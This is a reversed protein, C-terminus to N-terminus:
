KEEGLQIENRQLVGDKDSDFMNFIFEAEEDTVKTGTLRNLVEKFEVPTFSDKGKEDVIMELEDVYRFFNKLAKFSHAERTDGVVHYYKRLVGGLLTLMFTVMSGSVLLFAHPHEEIGHLLNMGFVGAMFAGSALSLTGMDMFLGMRIMRNRVSSLHTDIFQNTEDVASKLSRIESMIEGLDQAYAELLREVNSHEHQQRQSATLYLAVLDEDNKLLDDVASQVQHVNLEFEGLSKRFALLRRLMNGSPYETIKQLLLELAPKTLWIHRSFRTIVNNLAQELVVHEFDMCQINSTLLNHFEQAPTTLKTSTVGVSAGEDVCSNQLGSVFEKVVRNDANLVICKEPFCILKLHDLELLFCRSDPRVLVSNSNKAELHTRFFIKLDRRPLNLNFTDEKLSTVLEDLTYQSHQIHGCKHFETLQLM